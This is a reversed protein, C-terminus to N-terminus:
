NYSTGYNHTKLQILNGKRGAEEPPRKGHTKVICLYSIIEMGGFM